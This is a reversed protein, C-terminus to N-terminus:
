PSAAACPPFTASTGRSASPENSPENSPEDPMSTTTVTPEPAVCPVDAPRTRKIDRISEPAITTGDPLYFVGSAYRLTAGERRTDWRAFRAGPPPTVWGGAIWLWRRGQWRWEGDLWVSAPSPAPPIKDGRIAPPPYPVETFDSDRHASRAPTPVSPGCGVLATMAVLWTGLALTRPAVARPTSPLLPAPRRVTILTGALKGALDARRGGSEAHPM